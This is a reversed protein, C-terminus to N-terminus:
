EVPYFRLQVHKLGHNDYDWFYQWLEEDFLGYREPTGDGDMDVYITTLERTVDVFKPPSERTVKKHYLDGSFDSDKQVLEIVELSVWIDGSENIFGSKMTAWGEPKGLMRIYITYAPNEYDPDNDEDYPDPLQFEAKGDTGDADLVVFDDGPDKQLLIRTKGDLKVFIRHGNDDKVVPNGIIDAYDGKDWNKGLLNLTYHKGSQSGNGTEDNGAQVAVLGGAIILIAVIGLAISQIKM